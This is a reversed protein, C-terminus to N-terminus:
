KISEKPASFLLALIFWFYIMIHPYLLSNVFQSHVFLGILGVFIGLALSKSHLPIKSKYMKFSERLVVCYFCLYVLLGLFGTTAWITLISSDFGGGTHQKPNIIQSYDERVTRLNNYGVGLISYDQIIEFAQKFSAIRAQATIDLNVAGVVREHVRPIAFFAILLILFIVLMLRWSKILGIVILSVLFALYSSRSFTFILCIFLFLFAFFLLAKKSSTREILMRSLAISIVLVLFGGAFNPDFFTSLLRNIHPDWGYQTMFEFSPIFILQLIGLFAFIIGLWIILNYYKEWTQSDKRATDLILYFFLVYIIFRYLYAAGTIFENFNSLHILGFIFSLILVGIFIALPLNISTKPFVSEKNYTKIAFWSFLVLPLIIDNALIAGGGPLPIRLIQGLILALLVFVIGIKFNLLIWFIFIGLILLIIAFIPSFSIFFGYSIAILLSLLILLYNKSFQGNKVIRYFLKDVKM